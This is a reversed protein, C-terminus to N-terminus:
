AGAVLGIEAGKKPASNTQFIASSGDFSITGKLYEGEPKLIVPKLVGALADRMRTAHAADLDGLNTIQRKLATLARNLALSPDRAVTKKERELAGSLDRERAELDNLKGHLTPSLGVQAIADSVNALEGQVNRLEKEIERSADAKSRQKLKKSIYARAQEIRTPSLLEKRISDLIIDEADSRFVRLANSCGAGNHYDSCQYAHKANVIIMVAGCEGCRLLGSLVYKPQGPGTKRGDDTRKVRTKNLRADIQECLDVPWIRLDENQDVIWEHRPNERKLRKSSGPKKFWRNRNWIIEGRYLRNHIISYLGTRTWRGDTRKGGKKRNWHAAPSPIGRRNLDKAIAVLGEGNAYREGIELAVKATEPDIVKRFKSDPDNPDVAESTYGYARGGASFGQKHRERLGRRTRRKIEQLQEESMGAHVYSLLPSSVSDWGNCDVIRQDQAHLEEIAKPLRWGRALRNHEDVLIVDFENNAAARMLAGFGPRHDEDTTGSIGEDTFTAVVKYRERDALARCNAVQGDISTKDQHDTSYRAYIAATKM